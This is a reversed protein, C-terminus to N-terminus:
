GLLVKLKKKVPEKKEPLYSLNVDTFGDILDHRTMIEVIIFNLLKRIVLDPDVQGKISLENAIALWNINYHEFELNTKLSEDVCLKVQKTIAEIIIDTFLRHNIVDSAFFDIFESKTNINYEANENM